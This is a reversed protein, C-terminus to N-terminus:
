GRPGEYDTVDLPGELARTVAAGGDPRAYVVFVPPTVNTVYAAYGPVFGKAPRNMVEWDRLDGRGGLSVTGTGIGGLPLAIRALHEQDYRTLIPWPRDPQAPM